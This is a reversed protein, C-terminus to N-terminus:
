SGAAEQQGTGARGCETVPQRALAGTKGAGQGDLAVQGAQPFLREIVRRVRDSVCLLSLAAQHCRISGTGLALLIQDGSGGLDIEDARSEM